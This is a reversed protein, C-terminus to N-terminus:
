SLEDAMKWFIFCPAGVSLKEPVMGVAHPVIGEAVPEAESTRLSSYGDPTNNPTVSLVRSSSLPTTLPIAMGLQVEPSWSVSSLSTIIMDVVGAVSHWARVSIGM